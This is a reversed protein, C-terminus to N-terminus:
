NSSDGSKIKKSKMPLILSHATKMNEYNTLKM